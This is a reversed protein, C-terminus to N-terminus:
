CVTLSQAVHFQAVSRAVAVVTAIDLDKGNLRREARTNVLTDWQSLVEWSHSEWALAM